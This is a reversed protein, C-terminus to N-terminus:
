ADCGKGAAGPDDAATFEQWHVWGREACHFGWSRMRPGTLFVTICPQEDPSDVGCGLLPMLELRHPAPGMRLKVKGATRHTRHHIGGEAITHEMYQGRVLVSSNFLWPHDHLASDDDSRRIEHLYVNFVPNRPIVFWRLLYPREHGGIIFDPARTARVKDAWRQLRTLIFRPLRM